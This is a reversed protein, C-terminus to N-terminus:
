ETELWREAIAIIAVQDDANIGLYPRAPIHVTYSGVTVDRAFNSQAKKRFRQDLTETRADYHQYITRTHSPITIDGGLQHIAAYPMPSGIRIDSNSAVLNISGALRGEARLIHVPTQGKSERNRITKDKLRQWPEGDPGSEKEFNERTANILHEGVERYFGQPQNMMAVLRELRTRISGDSLSLKYSIGSM